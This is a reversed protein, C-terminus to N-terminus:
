RLPDSCNGDVKMFQGSGGAKQILDITEHGDEELIDAVLVSAGNRAFNLAAQRGIGSSGGTVIAVKGDFMGAM